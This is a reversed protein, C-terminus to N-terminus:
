VSKFVSLFSKEWYITINSFHFRASILFHIILRSRDSIKWQPTITFFCIFFKYIYYFICSTFCTRPLRLSISNLNGDYLQAYFQPTRRVTKFSTYFKKSTYQMSVYLYVYLYIYLHFISSFIHKRNTWRPSLGVLADNINRFAIWTGSWKSYLHIWLSSLFEPPIRVPLPLECFSRRRFCYYLIFWKKQKRFTTYFIYEVVSKINPRSEIKRPLLFQKGWKERPHFNWRSSLQFHLSGNASREPSPFERTFFFRIKRLSRRTAEEPPDAAEGSQRHRPSAGEARESRRWKPFSLTPFKGGKEERGGERGADGSTNLRIEVNQLHMHNHAECRM